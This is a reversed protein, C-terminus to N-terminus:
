KAPEDVESQQVLRGLLGAGARSAARGGVAAGVAAFVIAETLAPGENWFTPGTLNDTVHLGLAVASVLLFAGIASTMADRSDRRGNSRMSLPWVAAAIVPAFHYTLDPSRIALASWVACVAAAFVM